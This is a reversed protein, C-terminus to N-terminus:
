RRSVASIAFGAVVVVLVGVMIFPWAGVFQNLPGTTVTQISTAVTDIQTIALLGGLVALFMALLTAERM